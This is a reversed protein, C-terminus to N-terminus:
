NELMKKKHFFSGRKAYFVVLVFVTMENVGASGSQVLGGQESGM